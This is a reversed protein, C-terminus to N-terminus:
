KKGGKYGRVHNRFFEEQSRRYEEECKKKIQYEAIAGGIAIWTFLLIIPTMVIWAIIRAIDYFESATM